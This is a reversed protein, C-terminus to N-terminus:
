EPAVVNDIALAQREAMKMALDNAADAVNKGKALDQVFVTIAELALTSGKQELEALAAAILPNM